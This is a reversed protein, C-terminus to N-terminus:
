LFKSIVLVNQGPVYPEELIGECHYGRSLLILYIEPDELPHIFYMKRKGSLALNSEAFEILKHISKGHITSSLLLAKVAGGRKAILLLIALYKTKNKIYAVQIPKNEYSLTTHRRSMSIIQQAFDNGANFWTSEFLRALSNELDATDSGTYSSVTGVTLARHKIRIPDSVPRAIAHELVKGLLIEGRTVQYHSKLHGEIRYGARIFHTVLKQDDDPCTCYLKRCGNQIAYNEILRRTELGWGKGRFRKRLVTPGTKIGHGRKHTLTTYGILGRQKHIIELVEKKTTMIGNPDYGLNHIKLIHSAFSKSIDDYRPAISDTVLLRYESHNTKRIPRLWLDCRALSARRRHELIKYLRLNKDLYLFGQPIIFKPELKDLDPPFLPEIFKIPNVVEIANGIACNRFYYFFREKTTAREGVKEWLDRTPLSYISAVDFCGVIGAGGTQYLFVRSFGNKPIRRRLEYTKKGSFIREAFEPRISLLLARATAAGRNQKAVQKNDKEKREQISM